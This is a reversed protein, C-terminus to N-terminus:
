KTMTGRLRYRKGGSEYDYCFTFTGDEFSVTGNSVPLNKWGAVTFTGDPQRTFTVGNNDISNFYDETTINGTPSLDSNQTVNFFRAQDKNVAKLTRQMNVSSPTMKFTLAYLKDCDLGSTEVTFPLRSYVDGAKITTSMSPFSCFQDGLKQYKLPADLMYKNNYWEITADNHTLVVEVNRDINQSGGTAIAVYANQPGDGYAVDFQQVVEYAGVIYVQKYYQEGDLPSEKSCSAFLGALLGLTYITRILKM